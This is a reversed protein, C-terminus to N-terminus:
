AGKPLLNERLIRIVGNIDVPKAVHGNMGVALAREMDERYANATMAIIPIEKADRRDISRIQQTAEYGDLNPMQVDMFILDYHDPSAIFRSVAIQGDEAEDIAVHTEELLERLIIRNIEVDEVLLIRKGRFDPLEDRKPHLEEPTYDTKKFTITFSFTSGEHIRSQVTIEGGMQGILSQSISLGLGTGGFRPAISSDAQEFPRFIHGMQEETMGIGNDIISCTFTRERPSDETREAPKFLFALKGGEPTFKVGNGLLNILVQKLRLKDGLVAVNSVDTIAVSFQIKKERCRPEIIHVVELLAAHLIFPEHVLVFKGSEIKSMDLIDNLIALLHTSATFIQDLSAITKESRANRRAITTMGMIANLPTRIEHSIRTLFDGKAKSAVQAAKTQIELEATRQQITAELYKGLQRNRILMIALLIVVFDMLIFLALLLPVQSQAVKERYDFVRQIWYDSIQKTDVMAQTKSVVSALIEQQKNFGFRSDYSYNFVKNVKFGLREAYNNASLLLNRSAMLFDIDGRDLAQFANKADGYELTKTHKPFWNHFMDEYPSGKLLGIRAKLVHNIVNMNERDIRSLLAYYDSHYPASAWLFRNQNEASQILQTIMLGEGTELKNLLAATDEQVGNVPIYRIGSFLEMERLVDLAIGQWQKERKNYYSVPYNDHEVLLPIPEGSAIRDQVFGREEQTLSSLFKHRLYEQHGQIYLNTLHNSGEQQLYKDIVSIIPALEPDGTALSVPSSIFPFFDETMVYGYQDFVAEAVGDAFFTDITGAALLQYVEDYTAVYYSEFPDKLFPTILEKITTGQLFGYTKPSQNVSLNSQHQAMYIRKVTRNVMGDTMYYRNRREATATLDGTFDIRELAKPELGALLDEWTYIRVQFPIGFLDSLWQCFLATYGRIAQSGDPGGRTGAAPFCESSLTMGYIFRIRQDRLGEIRAIEEASVGPIDRYSAYPSVQALGAISIYERDQQGSASILDILVFGLLWVFFM